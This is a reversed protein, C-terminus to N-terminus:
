APDFRARVSQWRIQAHAASLISQGESVIILVVAEVVVSIVIAVVESAAETQERGRLIHRLRHRRRHSSLTNCPIISVGDSYSECTRQVVWIIKESCFRKINFVLSLIVM